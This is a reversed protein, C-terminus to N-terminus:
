KTVMKEIDRILAHMLSNLISRGSKNAVPNGFLILM